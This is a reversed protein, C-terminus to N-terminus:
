STKREKQKAVKHKTDSRKAKVETNLLELVNPPLSPKVLVRLLIESPTANLVLEIGFHPGWPADMIALITKTLPLLPKPIIFYDIMSGGKADKGAMCTFSSNTVVVIEAQMRDLWSTDDGDAKHDEWQASDINADLAWIFLDKGGRTQHDVHDLTRM